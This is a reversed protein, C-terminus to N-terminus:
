LDSPDPPSVGNRMSDWFAAPVELDVEELKEQVVQITRESALSFYQFILDRRADSGRVLDGLGETTRVGELSAEM